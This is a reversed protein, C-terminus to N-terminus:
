QKPPFEQKHLESIAISVVANQNVGIKEVLDKLMKQRRADVIVSFKKGEAKKNPM